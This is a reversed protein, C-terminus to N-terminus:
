ISSFIENSVALNRLMFFCKIGFCKIFYFSFMVYRSHAMLIAHFYVVERKPIKFIGSPYGDLTFTSSISFALGFLRLFVVYRLM